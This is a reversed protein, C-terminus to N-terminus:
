FVFGVACAFFHGRKKGGLYCYKGRKVNYGKVIDNVLPLLEANLYKVYGRADTQWYPAYLGSFAPVFYVGASSAVSAAL